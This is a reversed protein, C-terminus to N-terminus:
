DRLGYKVDVARSAADSEPRTVHLICVYMGLMELKGMKMLCLLAIAYDLTQENTRLLPSSSIRCRSWPSSPSRPEPARSASATASSCWSPSEALSRYNGHWTCQFWSGRDWRGHRSRRCSRRRGRQEGGRAGGGGARGAAGSIWGRWTGVKGIRRRRKNPGIKTLNSLDEAQTIQKQQFEFAKESNENTIITLAHKPIRVKSAFTIANM